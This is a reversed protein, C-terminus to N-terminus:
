ENEWDKRLISYISQDVIGRNNKSRQRLIGEFQMGCKRMVHGSARNESDHTAEIRQAPTQTFLYDIVKKLAETMYGQKWYNRGIVYGIELTKVRPYSNVVSISGILEAKEKLVIGWEYVDTENYRSEKKALFTEVQELSTYPPWTLYKTTESDSAWNAFMQKADNQRLKRLVLRNTELTITGM